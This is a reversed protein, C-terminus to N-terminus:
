ESAQGKNNKNNLVALLSDALEEGIQKMYNKYNTPISPADVNEADMIDMICDHIKYLISLKDMVRNLQRM